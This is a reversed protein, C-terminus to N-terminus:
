AAGVWGFVVKGASLGIAGVAASYIDLLQIQPPKVIGYTLLAGQVGASIVGPLQLYNFTKDPSLYSAWLGPTEIQEVWYSLEGKAIATALFLPGQEDCPLPSAAIMEDTDAIAIGIAEASITNIRNLLQHIIVMQSESYKVYRGTGGNVYGNYAFPLVGGLFLNAVDALTPQAPDPTFVAGGLIDNLNDFTPDPPLNTAIFDLATKSIDGGKRYPNIVKTQM